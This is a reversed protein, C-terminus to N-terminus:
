PAPVSVELHEAILVRRARISELIFTEQGSAAYRIHYWGSGSEHFSWAAPDSAILQDLRQGASEDTRKLVFESPEVGLVEWFKQNDLSIHITVSGDDNSETMAYSVEPDPVELLKSVPEILGDGELRALTRLLFAAMQDRTVYQEPLFRGTGDGAAIGLSAIANISTQHVSTSDDTFYDPATPTRRGRLVQDARALFAATQARTVPLGPGFTTAPTGGPGGNIIGARALRNISESHDKTIDIDTFTNRADWDALPHVELRDGDLKWATDMMNVVFTAMRERTVPQRPAYADRWDRDDGNGAGSTMRAWALCEIETLFINGRTDEFTHFQPSSGPSTGACFRTTSQIPPLAAAEASRSLLPLTVLLVATAAGTCRGPRRRIPRETPPM